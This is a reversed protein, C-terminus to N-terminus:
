QDYTETNGDYTVKFQSCSIFEITITDGNYTVSGSGSSINGNDCLILDTFEVSCTNGDDDVLSYSTGYGSSADGSVSVGSTHYSVSGVNYVGTSCTLTGDQYDCTEAYNLSGSENDSMNSTYTVDYDYELSWTSASTYTGDMALTGNFEFEYSGSSACYDNYTYDYDYTMPYMSSDGYTITYDYSASGGCGGNISGSGSASDQPQIMEESESLTEVKGSGMGPLTAKLLEAPSSSNSMLRLSSSADVEEAALIQASTEKAAFAKVEAGEDLTSTADGSGDSSTGGGGGGGCSILLFTSIACILFLKLYLKM